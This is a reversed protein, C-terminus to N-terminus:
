RTRTNRRPTPASTWSDKSLRPCSYEARTSCASTVATVMRVSFEIVGTRSGRTRNVRACAMSLPRFSSHYTVQRHQAYRRNLRNEAVTGLGWWSGSCAVACSVASSFIATAAALCHPRATTGRTWEGMVRSCRTDSVLSSRRMKSTSGVSEILCSPRWVSALWIRRASGSGIADRATNCNM